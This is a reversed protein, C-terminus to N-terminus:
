VEECLVNPMDERTITRVFAVRDVGDGDYDSQVHLGDENETGSVVEFGMAKHYAVSAKNIPSTICRVTVAENNALATQFFREYLMGAVGEKRYGPHVGIFHIYAENARSQSRLGIIFGIMEGDREAVFSTDNFHQFFLRPVMQIMDRGGWWENIVRKVPLADKELLHRINM